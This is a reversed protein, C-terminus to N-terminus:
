NGEMKKPVGFFGLFVQPVGCRGQWRSRGARLHALGRHLHTQAGAAPHHGPHCRGQAAPATAIRAFFTFFGLSFMKLQKYTCFIQTFNSKSNKKKIEFEFAKRDQHLHYTM